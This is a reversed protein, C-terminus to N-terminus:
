ASSPPMRIGARRLLSQQRENVEAVLAAEDIKTSEANRIVVNGDVVVHRIQRDPAGWILQHAPDGAPSWNLDNAEVVILDAKYGPALVGLDDGRGIARAGDKTALGLAWAAGFVSPDLSRDREVGALLAASLLISHHDSANCADTGLGLRGGRVSFEGHRGAVTLGQALRLYAWPCSAIAVDHDLLLEIEKDDIWVAHALLLHSGLVGIEDLHEIPSRGHRERYDASDASSPSMHMTMGVGLDRALQSAASMLEDSCLAHGVLTVWGQVRGGAPYDQIVASMANIYDGADRRHPVENEDWGWMGVTGRIGTALMAKAVAAPNAVTGAEVVTTVGSKLMRLSEVTASLEDDVADHVEHIPVAWEFISEQSDIHDPICSRVLPDGTLHQHANILGPMVLGGTADLVDASPFQRRATPEDLVDIVAGNAIVVAVGERVSAGGDLTLVAGGCVLLDAGSESSM